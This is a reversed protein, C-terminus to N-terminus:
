SVPLTGGLSSRYQFPIQHGVALALDVLVLIPGVTM